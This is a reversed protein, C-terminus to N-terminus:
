PGARRGRAGLTPWPALALRVGAHGSQPMSKVAGWEAERPVSPMDPVAEPAGRAKSAIPLTVPCPQHLSSVGATPSHPGQLVEVGRPCSSNKGAFPVTVRCPLSRHKSM